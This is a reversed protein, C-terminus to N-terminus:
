SAHPASRDCHCSESADHRCGCGQELTAIITRLNNEVARNMEAMRSQGAQEAHAVLARTADLQQHHQPLFEATTIFLPCTLCANAHPCSKQLPLGCYGNPLAMKARALNEKMWAGEALSEDTPTDVAEGRINIKQAREWQRRITTDNLRAYRATMTHSTHDLLRRVVEQPVENNILRCAYSHRFQHATVNAPRGLEDTVHCTSLWQKLQQHLTASPIPLDGDPNATARPILVGTHPFQQRTRQQQAEVMVALEDDIPVVADRRMKHNRYRLYAAGQNDRILCDLALATADGIRLGTRVLIEVLLRIRVDTLRDLNHQDELQAMVYEPVARPASAEDRRPHDSPYLEAEAPLRAWRHQRVARLFGDVASIEGSRSKPHPVALALQALYTELASRTLVAASISGALAPTLQALRRIATLDKRLQSLGIGCSLRWRCWRKTLEQLWRPSITTFDLRANGGARVGLRRLRWVNRDYESEWGTGDRVDLLCERAYGLFARTSSNLGGAGALDHVWHELPHELLSRAGAQPLYDLLPKIMDPTARTRRADVRCQLVYSIELRLSPPLARLDFRAEGYSTCYAIFEEAPPRGRGRWRTHHARCWGAHLEALLVCGPLACELGDTHDVPTVGSLWRELAPQGQAAWTRAHTYCLQGRLQGFRCGPWRCPRLPRYGLMGPDATAAWSRQEPRGDREWRLHHATCLGLRRSSRVCGNVLCAPTGLVPDDPAPVLVEVRFQPRVLEELRDSLSPRGPAGLPQVSM